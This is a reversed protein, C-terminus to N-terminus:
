AGQRLARDRTELAPLAVVTFWYNTITRVVRVFQDFDVPKTIYSSCRLKYTAQIDEIERSTTLVVVPLDCLEKDAAIEALVERGSMIPMHLDLLLLDPRPAEAYDGERRLFALCQEGNEVHYLNLALRAQQLGVLTLEADYPNDEAILVEIPRTAQHHLDM